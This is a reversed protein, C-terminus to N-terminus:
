KNKEKKNSNELSKLKELEGEIAEITPVWKKFEPNNVMEETKGVTGKESWEFFGILQKATSISEEALEETIIESPMVYKGDSVGCYLSSNKLNNLKKTNPFKNEDSLFFNMLSFMTIKSTHKVMRRNLKNWDFSKGSATKFGAKVLMPIKSAEEKSLHSLTFARAFCKNELLLESESLLEQANKLILKRANEIEDVTWKKM